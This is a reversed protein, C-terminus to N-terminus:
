CIDYPCVNQKHLCFSSEIAAGKGMVSVAVVGFGSRFVRRFIGNPHTMQAM